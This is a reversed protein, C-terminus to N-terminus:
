RAPLLDRANAYWRHLRYLVREAPTPEHIVDYLATLVDRRAEEPTRGQGFVGTNEIGEIHAAWWGDDTSEIVIDLHEVERAHPADAVPVSGV